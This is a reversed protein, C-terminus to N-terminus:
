CGSPSKPTDSPPQYELPWNNHIHCTLVRTSQMSVLCGLGGDSFDKIYNESGQKCFFINLMNLGLADAFCHGVTSM